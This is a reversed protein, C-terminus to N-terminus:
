SLHISGPHAFFLNLISGSANVKVNYSWNSRKLLDLLAEIPKRADLDQLRIKQLANSITKNTVYTENASTRLQLLIQAPKLNEQSLKRIEDFQEPVLRKQASHSSAGDSPNHNHTGNLVEMTWFKNVTKKSTPISGKIHFPCNIKLTATKRGSQNLM